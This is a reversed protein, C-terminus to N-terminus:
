ISERVILQGDILVTKVPTTKDDIKEKLMTVLAQAVAVNNYDITTLTPTVYRDIELNGMGAFKIPLGQNASITQAVLAIRDFQSLFVNPKEELQALKGALEVGADHHDQSQDFEIEWQPGDNLNHEQCAAVVGKKFDSEFSSRPHTKAIAIKTAGAAIVHSAMEHAMQFINSNVCSLLPNFGNVCVLPIPSQAVKFALQEPWISNVLIIGDIGKSALENIKSLLDVELNAYDYKTVILTYGDQALINLLENAIDMALASDLSPVLYAIMKSKSIRLAKAQLNIHYNNENIIKTILERKEQSVYGSNNIVRSVTATSVNALKAIDTIKM